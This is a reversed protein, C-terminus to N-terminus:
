SRQTQGRVLAGLRKLSEEMPSSGLSILSKVPTGTRIESKPLLCPFQYANSLRIVKIIGDIVVRKIRNHWSLLKCVELAKIAVAVTSRACGALRAITEYSPFCRGDRANHFGWLLAEFIVYAKATIARARVLARAKDMLKLKAKKSLPTVQGAGFLKLRFAM